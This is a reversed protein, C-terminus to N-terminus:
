REMDRHRVVVPFGLSRIIDGIADAMVVSRHRGGTCGVAITLYAKGEEVYHPLLYAMLDGARTLFEDATPQGRVYARVRPDTGPLPRLADVWHPNPLFRVDFMTDADLPLGNKYGFSVVSVQPATSPETAGFLDVLKARLQHVNIESTDLIVDARAKLDDLLERESAIGEPLSERLPHRRRNAEFRRILVDDSADLFLITVEIDLRKLDAMASELEEFFVGGRVDAVVAIRGMGSDRVAALEVVRGMLSPPLNDVVFWGADELVKAAESKGAGSLGTVLLLTRM